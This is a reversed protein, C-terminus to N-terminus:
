AIVRLPLVMAFKIASDVVERFLPIALLPGRGSQPRVHTVLIEVQRGGSEHWMQLLTTEAFSGCQQLFWLLGDIRVSLFLSLRTVFSFWFCMYLYISTTM